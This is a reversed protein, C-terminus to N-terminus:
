NKIVKFQTATEDNTIIRIFYMGKTYASLDIIKADISNLILKGQMDYVLISLIKLKESDYKLNFIDNSPNPYLLVTSNEVEKNKSIEFNNTVNYHIGNTNTFQTTIVYNGPQKFVYKLVSDSSIIQEDKVWTLSSPVINLNYPLNIKITDNVM